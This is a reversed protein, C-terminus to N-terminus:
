DLKFGPIPAYLFPERALPMGLLAFVGGAAAGVLVIAVGWQVGKRAFRAVVEPDNESATANTTSLQRRVDVGLLKREAARATLESARSTLALANFEIGKEARMARLVRAVSARTEAAAWKAIESKSGFKKSAYTAGELAVYAFEAGDGGELAFARAGEEFCRLEREVYGRARGMADVDSRKLVNLEDSGFCAARDFLAKTKARECGDGEGNAIAKAANSLGVAGEVRVERRTVGPADWVEEGEDVASADRAFTLFRKKRTGAGDSSRRAAFWIKEEDVTARVVDDRAAVGETVLGLSARAIVALEDLTIARKMADDRTSLWGDTTADFFTGATERTARAVDVRAVLAVLAILTAAVRARPM